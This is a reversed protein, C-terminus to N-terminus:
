KDVKLMEPKNKEFHMIAAVNFIVAALHDEDTMGAKYCYLHREASDLCSSVPIGKEWNRDGYKKSGAEYLKALRFMMEPPILDFRGKGEHMDRVAGTSFETRNGSDMIGTTTVPKGVYDIIGTTTIPKGICDMIGVTTVSKPAYAKCYNTGEMNECECGICDLCLNKDKIIQLDVNM